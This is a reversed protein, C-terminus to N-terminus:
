VNNESESNEFGLIKDAFLQGSMGGDGDDFTAANTSGVLATLCGVWDMNSLPEGEVSLIKELEDWPISGGLAANLDDM